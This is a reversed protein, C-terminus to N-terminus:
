LLGEKRLYSMSRQGIDTVCSLARTLHYGAESAVGSDLMVLALDVNKEVERWKPDTAVRGALHVDHLIMGIFVHAMREASRRNKEPLRILFELAQTVWIIGSKVKESQSFTLIAEKSDMKDDRGSSNVHM